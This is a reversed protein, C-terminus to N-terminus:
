VDLTLDERPVAICTLCTGEEPEAGHETVYAVRGSKIAVLCTACNGARCGSDVAVGNDSLFDLLNPYSGDWRCTKGSRSCLVTCGAAAPQAAAGSPHAAAPGDLAADGSPHAAAPGDLAADGNGTPKPFAKKVTAAGFAETLIDDKPVRWAKLGDILASMMPPPGCLYFQFNSSGLTNQLLETSVHGRFHYDRNEVDSERPHSYVHHVRINEHREVLEQLAGRLAHEGGHRVGYFLHVERNTGAEAVTKAMCFLPTIGVGGAILVVPRRDAPDLAFHGRPAQVDLIDGEHVADHFYSSVLGHPADPEGPPPVARKITVRFYNARPSDSLSYCRIVPKPQGPIDLRFTLYQGSKFAPLPKGDHPVLYFSRVREAEEVIRDVVFKRYGNWLSRLQEHERRAANAAEIQRALVELEMQRQVQEGRIQRLSSVVYLGLQVAVLSLLVAGAIEM